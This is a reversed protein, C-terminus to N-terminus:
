VTEETEHRLLILAAEVNNKELLERIKQIKWRLQTIVAGLHNYEAVTLTTYPGDTVEGM